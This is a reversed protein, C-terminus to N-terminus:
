QKKAPEKASEQQAQQMMDYHAKMMQTQMDAKMDALEKNLKGVKDWDIKDEALAKKIELEKEDMAIMKQQMEKQMEPTMMSDHSMMPCSMGKMMGGSGMMNGSNQHGASFAAASLVLTGLVILKKM